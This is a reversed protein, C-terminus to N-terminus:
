PEAQLLVYLLLHFAKRTIQAAFDPASLFCIKMDPLSGTFQQMIEVLNVASM